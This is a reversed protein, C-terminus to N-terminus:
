KNYQGKYVLLTEDVVKDWKYKDCIYDASENRYREALEPMDSIQQLHNRLDEIDGKKFTIAKDEIVDSCESIDSVICCNGYSMAELLTLPMGELDSPLVFCYCNSFLEELEKGQVFGTFIIRDDGKSLEHISNVFEDTDSGSGAIVLKKDTNTARFARILYELGKEPVLRGLFMFYDRENLNYKEKIIEPKQPLPRNVGNPILITDRGYTEKFYNQIGKSLVIISDAYKAARKEGSLIYNSATSDWKKRKHDLGHITVICKKGFLKPIWIAHCPGEAHFHVIDYPGLAAKLAAFYSSTAAAYGRRRLTPVYRLEVGKYKDLKESDYEIGAVHHDSRNFLTVNHGQKVMRVSLEEVVVEVGGERSPVRKHGLMAINLHDKSAIKNDCRNLSTQM